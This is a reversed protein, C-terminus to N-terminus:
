MSYTVHSLLCRDAFYPTICLSSTMCLSFFIIEERPIKRLLIFPIYMWGKDASCASERALSHCQSQSQSTPVQPLYVAQLLFHPNSLPLM